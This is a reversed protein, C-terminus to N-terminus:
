SNTTCTTPPIVGGDQLGIYRRNWFRKDRLQSTYYARNWLIGILIFTLIGGILQLTSTPIVSYRQLFILLIVATLYLFSCQLFFFTDLKNQAQWEDIEGQRTYTDSSGDEMNLNKQTLDSAIDSITKNRYLYMGYTLAQSSNGNAANLSDFLNGTESTNIENMLSKPDITSSGLAQQTAISDAAPFVYDYTPAAM